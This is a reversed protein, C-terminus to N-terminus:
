EKALSGEGICGVTGAHKGSAVRVAVLKGCKLAKEKTTAASAVVTLETGNTLKAVVGETCVEPPPVEKSKTRKAGAKAEGLQRDLDSSLSAIMAASCEEASQGSDWLSGTQGAAVAVKRTGAAVWAPCLALAIVPVITKKM